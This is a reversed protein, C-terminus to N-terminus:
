DTTWAKGAAIRHTGDGVVDNSAVAIWAEITVADVSLEM